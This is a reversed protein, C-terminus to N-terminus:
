IQWGFGKKLLAERSGDDPEYGAFGLVQNINRLAESLTEGEEYSTDRHGAEYIRALWYCFFEREDRAETSAAAAKLENIAKEVDFTILSALSERNHKEITASALSTERQNILGRIEIIRRDGEAEHVWVSVGAENAWVMGVPLSHGTPTSAAVFAHHILHDDRMCKVLHRQGEASKWFASDGLVQCHLSRLEGCFEAGEDGKARCKETLPVAPTSAAPQCHVCTAARVEHYGHCRCECIQGEPTSPLLDTINAAAPQVAARLTMAMNNGFEIVRVDTEGKLSGQIWQAAWELTDKDLKTTMGIRRDSSTATFASGEREAETTNTITIKATSLVFLAPQRIPLSLM